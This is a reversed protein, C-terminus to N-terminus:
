RLGGPPSDLMARERAPEHVAHVICRPSSGEAFPSADYDGWTPEIRFGARELAAHLVPADWLRVEEHYRHTEDGRRLTIEKVVVQRSADIRRDEQVDYGGARRRTQPVLQRRVRSANFVDLLFRGGPRLVRGVERLVMEDDDRTAFYGFSTFLSLVLDCSSARLPVHRMDGRLLTFAVDRTRRVHAAQDLLDWSLDVGIAHVGARALPVLWRGAGCALDLVVQGPVLLPVLLGQTAREAETANRHAYVDLYPADFAKEYWPPQSM